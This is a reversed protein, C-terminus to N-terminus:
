GDLHKSLHNVLLGVPIGVLLTAFGSWAPSLDLAFNAVTYGTICALAAGILVLARRTRQRRRLRDRDEDAAFRQLANGHADRAEAYSRVRLQALWAVPLVAFEAASSRMDLLYYATRRIDEPGPQGGRERIRELATITADHKRRREAYREEARTGDMELAWARENRFRALSSCTNLVIQHDEIVRTLLFIEALGLHWRAMALETRFILLALADPAKDPHAALMAAVVKDAIERGAAQDAQLAAVRAADHLRARTYHDFTNRLEDSFIKFIDYSPLGRNISGTDAGARLFAAVVPLMGEYYARLLPLDADAAPM